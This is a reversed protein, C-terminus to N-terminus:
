LSVVPRDHELHDSIQGLRLRSRGRVHDKDALKIWHTTYRAEGGVTYHECWKIYPTQVVVAKIALYDSVFVELDVRPLPVAIM